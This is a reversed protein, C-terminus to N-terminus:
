VKFESYPKLIDSVVEHMDPTNEFDHRSVSDTAYFCALTDGFERGGEFAKELMEKLEEFSIEM